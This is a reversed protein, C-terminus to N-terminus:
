IQDLSGSYDWDTGRSSLLATTVRGPALEIIVSAVGGLLGDPRISVIRGQVKGREGGADEAIWVTRGITPEEAPENDQGSDM